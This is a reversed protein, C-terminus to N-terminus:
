KKDTQHGDFPLNYQKGFDEIMRELMERENMFPDVNKKLHAFINVFHLYHNVSLSLTKKTYEVSDRKTAGSTAIADLSVYLNKKRATAKKPIRAQESAVRPTSFIAEEPRASEQPTAIPIDSFDKSNKSSTKSEKRKIINETNDLM